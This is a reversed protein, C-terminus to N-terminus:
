VPILWGKSISAAKKLAAVLHFLPPIVGISPSIWYHKIKRSRLHNASSKTWSPKSLRQQVPQICQNFTSRQNNLTLSFLQM